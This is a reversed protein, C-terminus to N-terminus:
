ASPLVGRRHGFGCYMFTLPSKRSSRICSARTGQHWPLTTAPGLTSQGERGERGEAEAAERAEELDAVDAACSQRPHACRRSGAGRTRPRPESERFRRASDSRAPLNRLGARARGRARQGLPLTRTSLASYGLTHAHCDICGAACGPCSALQYRVCGVVCCVVRICRCRSPGAAAARSASYPGSRSSRRWPLRYHYLPLSPAGHCVRPSSSNHLQSSGRSVEPYFVFGVGEVAHIM